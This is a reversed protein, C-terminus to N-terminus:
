VCLTRAIEISNTVVKLRNHHALEQAVFTTTSGTDLILSDGDDVLAAAARAIAQKADRNQDMRRELPAERLRDPMVIGGHVKQVVGQEVLPRVHRRITEDSVQLRRALELITCVGKAQVERLIDSQHRTEAKM